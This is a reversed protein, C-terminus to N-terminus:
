VHMVRMYVYLTHLSAHWELTKYIVFGDGPQGRSRSFELRTNFSDNIEEHIRSIGPIKYNHVLGQLSKVRSM